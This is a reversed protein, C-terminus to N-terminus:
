ISEQKQEIFVDRGGDCLIQVRNHYGIMNNWFSNWIIAVCLFLAGMIDCSFRVM